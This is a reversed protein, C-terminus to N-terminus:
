KLVKIAKLPDFMIYEIKDLDIDYNSIRVINDGILPDEPHKDSLIFSDAAIVTHNSGKMYINEGWVFNDDGIILTNVNELYNKTIWKILEALKKMTLYLDLKTAFLYRGFYQNLKTSAETHIPLVKSYILNESIGIAEYLDKASTDYNKQLNASTSLLPIKIGFISIGGTAKTTTKGSDIKEGQYTKTPNLVPKLFSGLNFFVANSSSTLLFVVLLALLINRM